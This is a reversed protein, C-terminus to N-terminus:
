NLSLSILCNAITTILLTNLHPLYVMDLCYINPTTYILSWTIGDPSKYVQGPQQDLLFFSKYKLSYIIRFVHAPVDGQLTYQTWNTGDTSSYGYGNPNLPIKIFTTGSCSVRDGTYLTAGTDVIIGSYSFAKGVQFFNNIGQEYYYPQILNPVIWDRRSMPTESELSFKFFYPYTNNGIFFTRQLPNWECRTPNFNLGPIRKWNIGDTTYIGTESTVQGNSALLVVTNIEPACVAIDFIGGIFTTSAPVWVTGDLTLNIQDFSCAVVYNDIPNFVMSTYGSSGVSMINNEYRTWNICDHSVLTERYGTIIANSDTFVVQVFTSSFTNVFPLTPKYDWTLGDDTSIFYNLFSEVVIFIGNGYAVTIVSGYLSLTPTWTVGDNSVYVSHNFGAIFATDSAAFVKQYSYWYGSSPATTIKQWTVGDLSEYFGPHAFGWVTKTISIFKHLFPIWIIDAAPFDPENLNLIWNKGNSSVYNGTTFKGLEPSWAVCWPGSAQPYDSRYWVKGDPSYVIGQGNYFASPVVFIKLEPSYAIYFWYAFGSPSAYIVSDDVLGNGPFLTIPSPDVLSVTIYGSNNSTAGLDTFGTVSTDAYCTAGSVGDGPSGTYGGGGSVGTATGSVYGSTVSPGGFAQFTFTNSSTTVIPWQGDFYRTGTIEVVYDHPYGHDDSTSATCTTTPDYMDVFLFARPSSLGTVACINSGLALLSNNDNINLVVNLPISPAVLNKGAGYAYLDLDTRSFGAKEFFPLSTIVGNSYLRCNYNFTFIIKSGDRNIHLSLFAATATTEIIREPTSWINNAYRYIDIFFSNSNSFAIGITNGDGSIACVCYNFLTSQNFLNTLSWSGSSYTYVNLQYGGFCVATNGDSSICSNPLGPAETFINELRTEFVGNRWIDGNVLWVTGDASTSVTMPYDNYNLNTVNWTSNNYTYVNTYNISTQTQLSVLFTNADESLAISQIQRANTVSISPRVQKYGTVSTLETLNNIPSQGGGFGGQYMYGGYEYANGFGGNIYAKPKLFSFYPNTIQGDTFYGAGSIGSGTGSPLFSGYQGSSTNNFFYTIPNVLSILSNVIKKGTSDMSAAAFPVSNVMNSIVIQSDLTYLSVDYYQAFLLISGDYSLKIVGPLYNTQLYPLVVERLLGETVSFIDLVIQASNPNCSLVAIKQGDYSVSIQTVDLSITNIPNIVTSPGIWTDGSRSFKFLTLGQTAYVVTGDGSITASRTSFNTGLQIPTNWTLDLNRTCVYPFCSVNDTTQIFLITNGDYSVSILFSSPIWSQDTIYIPNGWTSIYKYVIINTDEQIVVTNGDGSIVPYNGLGSPLSLELNWVGSSYRYITIEPQYTNLNFNKSVIVTGDDSMSISVRAIGPIIFPTYIYKGNSYSQGDGGSAVILPKDGSVVFTGGGGGITVNDQPIATLQSPCQGVLMTLTQGENLRVQGTVVRGASAGYAGAATIQYTGNAPVTWYQQGDQIYFDGDRWPANAYGKTVDPGRSGSTGLTTFTFTDFYYLGPYQPKYM